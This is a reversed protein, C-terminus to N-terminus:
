ADAELEEKEAEQQTKMSDFAEQDLLRLPSKRGYFLSAITDDTTMQGSATKSDHTSYSTFDNYVDWMNRPYLDPVIIRELTSESFKKGFIEMSQEYGLHVDQWCTWLDYLYKAEDVLRAIKSQISVDNYGEDILQRSTFGAVTMGVVAGNSCIERYVGLNMKFKSPKEYSNGFLLHIKNRDNGPMDIVPFPELSIKARITAGNKVSTVEMTPAEDFMSVLADNIIQLAELHPMIFARSNHVGFLIEHDASLVAKKEDFQKHDATQPFAQNYPLIEVPLQWLDNNQIINM